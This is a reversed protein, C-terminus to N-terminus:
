CAREGEFKINDILRTKGVKAAVALLVSGNVREVPTLEDADVLEVYDIDVDKMGERVMRILTEGDREGEELAERAAFLSRSLCLARNREKASLYVNRSSLALGDADRVLPMEVIEIGMDLDRVMRRIIACQQADKQGFYARHPVVSNFLKTVVTAVGRFFHPRTVGCLGEQLREVEVYTAYGPPYM